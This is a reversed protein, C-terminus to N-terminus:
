TLNKFIITMYSRKQCKEIWIANPACIRIESSSSVIFVKLLFSSDESKSMKYYYIELCIILAPIAWIGMYCSVIAGTNHISMLFFPMWVCVYLYVFICKSIKKGSYGSETSYGRIASNKFVTVESALCKLNLVWKKVKWLRVMLIMLLQNNISIVTSNFWMLFVVIWSKLFYHM